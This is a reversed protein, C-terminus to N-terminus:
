VVSKRDRLHGPSTDVTSDLSYRGSELAAVLTMPKVTSGPEMLDTVARNRAAEPRYQRRNNPNFSPQNVMALVEGSQSLDSSCVDSSWDRPWRTHRRRSSFFFCLLYFM